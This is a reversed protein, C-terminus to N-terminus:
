IANDQFIILIICFLIVALFDIKMDRHITNIQAISADILIIKDFVFQIPDFRPHM